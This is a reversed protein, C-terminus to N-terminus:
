LSLAPHCHLRGHPQRRKVHGLPGVGDLLVDKPPHNRSAFGVQCVLSKLLVPVAAHPHFDRNRIRGEIKTGAKGATEASPQPKPSEVGQVNSRRELEFGFAEPREVFPLPPQSPGDPQFGRSGDM